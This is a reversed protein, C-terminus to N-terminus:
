LAEVVRTGAPRVQLSDMAQPINAEALLGAAANRVAFTKSGTCLLLARCVAMLHSRGGRLAVGEAAPIDCADDGDDGVGESLCAAEVDEPALAVARTWSGPGAGSGGKAALSSAEYTSGPAQPVAAASSGATVGELAQKDALQKDAVLQRFTSSLLGDPVRMDGLAELVFICRGWPRAPSMFMTSM